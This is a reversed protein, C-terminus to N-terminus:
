ILMYSSRVLQCRTKWTSNSFSNLMSKKPVAHTARAMNIQKRQNVQVVQSKWSKKCIAPGDIGVGAPGPKIQGVNGGYTASVTFLVTDIKSVDWNGGLLCMKEASSKRHVQKNRFGWQWWYNWLLWQNRRWWCCYDGYVASQTSIWEEASCKQSSKRQCRFLFLFHSM